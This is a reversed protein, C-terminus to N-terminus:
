KASKETKVPIVQLMGLVQDFIVWLLGTNSKLAVRGAEGGKGDSKIALRYINRAASDTCKYTFKKIVGEKDWPFAAVMFGSILKRLDKVNAVQYDHEPDETNEAKVDDLRKLEDKVKNFANKVDDPFMDFKAGSIHKAINAAPVIVDPYGFGASGATFINGAAGIRTKICDYAPIMDDAIEGRKETLLGDLEKVADFQQLYYFAQVMRSFRLSDVNKLNMIKEIRKVSGNFMDLAFFAMNSQDGNDDKLSKVLSLVDFTKGKEEYLFSTKDINTVRALMENINMDKKM